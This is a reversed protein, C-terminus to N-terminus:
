EQGDSDERERDTEVHRGACESCRGSSNVDRKYVARGCVACATVDENM